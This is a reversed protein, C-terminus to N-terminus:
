NRFGREQFQINGSEGGACLSRVPHGGPARHPAPRSSDPQIGSGAFRGEREPAEEPTTIWSLANVPREMLIAHHKARHFAPIMPNPLFSRCRQVRRLDFSGQDLEALSPRCVRQWKDPNDLLERQAFRSQKM